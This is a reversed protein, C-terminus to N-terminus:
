FKNSYIRYFDISFILEFRHDSLQPLYAYRVGASFPFMIRAIHFDSTIETGMSYLAQQEWVRTNNEVRQFRNMAYDYFLGAKFRKVYLVSPINWDPYFLPFLYDSKFSFLKQTKSPQLGRPFKLYSPYLYAEPNQKQYGLNLKIGHDEIFGPLYFIGALSTMNGLMKESFPSTRFNLDFTFGWRPQLDRYAMRQYHYFWFNYNITKLGRMYYDERYNHYFDRDYEYAISPVLGTFYKNCSFNLPLSISANFEMYDNNLEPTWEVSPDRIVEPKGGYGTSIRFVPFWGKYIFQSHLKHTGSQYSYGLTTLATSLLNQSFLTIGPSIDTISKLNINYDMYLPAWSHFNFLNKYRRYPHANYRHAPINESFFLQDEDERLSGILQNDSNYQAKIPYFATTDLEKEYLNYGESDFSAYVISNSSSSFSVDSANVPSHTIRYLEEESLDLACIEEKYDLAGKFYLYDKGTSLHQIERFSPKLLQKWKGTSYNISYISKGNESTGIVFIHKGDVSWVPQQIFINAPHTFQKQIWGNETDLVVLRYESKQTVKIVAIRKGDDSIDPAFLRTKETLIKEIGRKMNYVKIVSYSRNGWRVDPIEESWVILDKAYSFREFSMKGPIHIIKEKGKSIKVFRPLRSYDKKLALINGDEMYRPHRYSTYSSHETTNIEHTNTEDVKGSKRPYFSGYFTMASDYLDASYSDTFRNLGFNFSFIQFPKQGVYNELNQWLKEGYQYRAYSTIHYGLEYHNPTNNKYSGLLMKDFSYLPLSDSLRSRIQKTFDPVRGRGDKTLVTESIVADGELYWMPLLGAVVATAQEGFIYNLIRTIGQNLKDIQVWHRLEHVCLHELWPMPNNDQPPVSYLEVRHPAPAVFGNSTVSKNHIIVSVKRPKCEMSNSVRDYSYELINAVYRANEKYNEPFILQFHESNIQEWKTSAPEQGSMFYQAGAEISALICIFLLVFKKIRIM